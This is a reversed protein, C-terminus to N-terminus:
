RYQRTQDILTIEWDSMGHHEDGDFHAHFSPQKVTNGKIFNRHASKYNNFRLDLYSVKQVVQINDLVHKVHFFDCLMIPVVTLIISSEAINEKLVLFDIHKLLLFM